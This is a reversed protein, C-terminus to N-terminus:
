NCVDKNLSILSHPTKQSAISHFYFKRQEAKYENFLFLSADCQPLADGPVYQNKYNIIKYPFFGALKKCFSICNKSLATIATLIITMVADTIRRLCIMQM